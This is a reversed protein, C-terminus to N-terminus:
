SAKADLIHLPAGGLNRIVFTHSVKKGVSVDGFDHSAEVAVIRPKSADGPSFLVDAPQSPDAVGAAAGTLLLLGLLLGSARRPNIM